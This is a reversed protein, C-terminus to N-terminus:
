LVNSTPQHQPKVPHIREVRAASGANGAMSTFEQRRCVAMAAADAAAGAGPRQEQQRRLIESPPVVRDRGGRAGASAASGLRLNGPGQDVHAPDSFPLVDCVAGICCHGAAGFASDDGLQVDVACIHQRGQQAAPLQASDAAGAAGAAPGVRHSDMGITAAANAEASAGQSDVAPDFAHTTTIDRKPHIQNRNLKGYLAGQRRSLGPIPSHTRNGRVSQSHRHTAGVIHASHVINGVHSASAAM